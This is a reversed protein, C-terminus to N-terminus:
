LGTYVQKYTKSDLSISFYALAWKRWSQCGRPLAVFMSYKYDRAAYKCRCSKHILPITYPIMGEEIALAVECFHHVSVKAHSSGIRSVLSESQRFKEGRKSVLFVIDDNAKLRVFHEIILTIDRVFAVQPICKILFIPSILHFNSQLSPCKMSAYVVLKTHEGTKLAGEPIQIEIGAGIVTGGRSDIQGCCLLLKSETM